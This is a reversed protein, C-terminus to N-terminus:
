RTISLGFLLRSYNCFNLGQWEAHVYLPTGRGHRLDYSAGVGTNLALFTKSFFGAGGILYPQISQGPGFPPFPYQLNALALLTNDDGFGFALEPVLKFSSGPRFPGLDARASLVFQTEDTLGWGAFGRLDQTQVASLRQWYSPRGPQEVEGPSERETVRATPEEPPMERIREALLTDFRQALRQETATMRADIARMDVTPAQMQSQAVLREMRESLRRELEILRQEFTLMDVPATPAVPVRQAATDIPQGPMARAGPQPAPEGARAVTGASLESRVIDRIQDLTISEAVARGATDRHPLAAPTLPGYRFIVEGQTPVPATVMRAGAYSPAGAPMAASDRAPVPAPIPATVVTTDRQVTTDRSASDTAALMREKQLRENEARLRELEERDRGTIGRAPEPVEGWLSITLGASLVTNHTLDDTSAVDGLPTDVAMLYDRLGVNIAVRNFLRLAAGGGLIFVTQDERTLGAPTRFDSDYDVRGAGLVLFPSIGPGTNLKFQAEAGYGSVPDTGDLDENAGRWYFGRVGVLRSVDVGARVGALDQDPLGIDGSYQLRGVFPELPVSTGRLGGGPGPDEPLNSLPITLAAGYLMNRHSPGRGESPADPAFLRQPSLRFALQEAFLEGQRWNMGFRLGAGASLAVRSHNPGTDPEFRVVGGGARLFPILGRSRFNYQLNAGYHRIDPGATTAPVGYVDDARDPDLDLGSATYFFPQL